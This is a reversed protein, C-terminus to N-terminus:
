SWWNCLHTSSGDSTVAYSGRRRFLQLLTCGSENELQWNGLAMLILKVVNESVGTVVEAPRWVYVRSSLNAATMGGVDVVMVVM